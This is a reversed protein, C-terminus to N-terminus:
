KVGDILGARMEADLSGARLFCVHLPREGVPGVLRVRAGGPGPVRYLQAFLERQKTM